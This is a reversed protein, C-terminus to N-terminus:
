NVLKRFIFRIGFGLLVVPLILTIIMGLVVCLIQAWWPEDVPLFNM